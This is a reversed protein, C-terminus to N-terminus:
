RDEAEGGEKGGNWEGGEQCRALGLRGEEPGRCRSNGRGPVVEVYKFPM